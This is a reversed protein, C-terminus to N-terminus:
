AYSESVAIGAVDSVVLYLPHENGSPGKYTFRHIRSPNENTRLDVDFESALFSAQTGDKFHIVVKLYYGQQSAM